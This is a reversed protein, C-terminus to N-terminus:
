LSPGGQGPGSVSISPATTDVPTRMRRLEALEQAIRQGQRSRVESERPLPLEPVMERLAHEHLEVLQALVEGSPNPLTRIYDTVRRLEGFWVIAQASSLPKAQTTTLADTAGSLQGDSDARNRDFAVSGDRAIVTLRHISASGEAEAILERTRQLAQDHTQRPSLNSARGAHIASAHSSLESLLSEARRAAVTVVRTSFGEAAFSGAVGLAARAGFQGELLLSRQTERAHAICQQLLESTQRARDVGAPAMSFANLDAATLPVMTEGHEALLRGTARAAGAGPQGILLVLTPDSEQPSDPFLTPLIDQEFGTTQGGVASTTM